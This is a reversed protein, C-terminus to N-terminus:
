KFVDKEFLKRRKTSQICLKKLETVNEDHLIQKFNTLEEVFANIEHILNDKNLFFLESWLHENINAIRTLERFSDGTYSALHANDKTNMLSVAIVHTLQSVFAIMVDHQQPSLVSITAFGLIQAFETVKHLAKESNKNTPTIIFNAVHFITDDAHQVGSVEKGAMPHSSLFEIDKRLLDQIRSIITSKVGSVDTILANKKMHNQYMAIWDIMKNPYLCSIIFDADAIFDLASTSGNQIIGHQLAYAISSKEIDIADVHYGQKKLAMAYSGGILGLGVILFRTNKAIM